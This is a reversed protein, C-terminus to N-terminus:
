RETGLVDDFSFWVRFKWWKLESFRRWLLWSWYLGTSAFLLRPTSALVHGYLLTFLFVTASPIAIALFGVLMLGHWLQHLITLGMPFRFLLYPGGIFGDGKVCRIQQTHFGCNQSCRLDASYVPLDFFNWSPADFSVVLPAGDMPCTTNESNHLTRCSPCVGKWLYTHLRRLPKRRSPPRMATTDPMPIPAPPEQGTGCYFCVKTDEPLGHGCHQCTLM